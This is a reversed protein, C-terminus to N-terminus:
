SASSLAPSAAPSQRAVAVSRQRLLRESLLSLVVTAACFSWPLIPSVWFLKAAHRLVAFWGLTGGLGICLALVRRRDIIKLSDVSVSEILLAFPFAVILDIFYHEGTGLTALVTFFLFLLAISREWWSLGRSYWWVLLVWGMHLSPIANPPGNLAIPAPLLKSAQAFTVPHWPFGQLFLHAPGLAPFLNYFIMGIPGTALFAVAAPLAKERDQLVRGAYILSIPIPLGIYFLVAVLRLLPWISFAQGMVFPIQIGLSSDFSLLYLDLDKAHHAATWRLLNDAFYESVVFLLAPIFGFLLRTRDTRNAWISRGGFVLFSSLGAFALWVLPAPRFHLVQLDILGIAITGSLVLGADMGTPLIRLHIVIVNALALAFFASVLAESYFQRNTALWVGCALLLATLAIKIIRDPLM